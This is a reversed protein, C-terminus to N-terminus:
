KFKLKQITNKITETVTEICNKQVDNQHISRYLM